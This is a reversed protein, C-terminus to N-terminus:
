RSLGAPPRSWSEPGVRSSPHARVLRGEVTAVHADRGLVVEGARVLGVRAAEVRASEADVREVAVVAEKGLARRVVNPAPGRLRFQRCQVTGLVSDGLLDADVSGAVVAGPIHATGRLELRGCRVSPARLSGRVKLTGDVVLEGAVLVRGRLTAEAARVSTGADLSGRSSLRGAVTVPGHADFAGLVTLRGATTPGGVVVTGGLDAAGVDVTGAVKAIGRVVWRQARVEDHRTTGRAVLAPGSKPSPSPAAAATPAAAAAPGTAGATM